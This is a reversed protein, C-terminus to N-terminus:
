GHTIGLEIVNAAQQVLDPYEEHFVDGQLRSTPGALSVTGVVEDEGNRIPAGVCRLGRLREEDDFAIGQERVETLHEFLEDTDVITNETRRPLGHYDIIRQIEAKSKHALIPKGAATTHLHIRYGDYSDLQVANEGKPRCLFVGRGHEEVLISALEGTNEALKEVEDKGERYIKKRKRTIEGLDLFRLGLQYSGNEAVLYENQELTSLHSHVTSKPQDLVKAIEAVGAEGREKVIEIIEFTLEITGVSNTKPKM